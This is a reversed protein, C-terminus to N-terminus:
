SFFKLIFPAIFGVPLQCGGGKCFTNKGYRGEYQRNSYIAELSQPRIRKCFFKKGTSFAVKRVKRNKHAIWM